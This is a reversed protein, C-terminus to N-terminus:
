LCIKFLWVENPLFVNAQLPHDKAEGGANVSYTTQTKVPLLFDVCIRANGFGLRGPLIQTENM